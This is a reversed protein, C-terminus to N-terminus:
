GVAMSRLQGLVARAAGLRDGWALLEIGPGALPLAVGVAGEVEATASRLSGAPAGPDVLVLCALAGAGSFCASSRWSRSAPGLGLESVLLPRGGVVVETRVTWSGPPDEGHRGLVVEEALSLRATPAMEVVTVARHDCGAAAIGPEPAWDLAAGDALVLEVRQRSREGGPGRRALTAGVSAVRATAGEALSLRVSTEDGGVPHAGAGVLYLADGAARLALSGSCSLATLRPAGRRTGSGSRASAAVAATVSGVLPRGQCGGPSM